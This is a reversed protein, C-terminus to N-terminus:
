TPVSSLCLLFVSPCTMDAAHASHCPHCSLGKGHADAAGLLLYCM